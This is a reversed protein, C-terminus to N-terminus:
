VDAPSWAPCLRSAIDWCRELVKGFNTLDRRTCGHYMFGGDYLTNWNSCGDWKVSGELCIMADDVTAADTVMGDEDERILVPAGDRYGFIEYIRFDVHHSSPTAVAAFGIDEFYVLASGAPKGDITALGADKDWSMRIYREDPASM